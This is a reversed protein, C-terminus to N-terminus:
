KSILLTPALLGPHPFISISLELSRDSPHAGQTGDRFTRCRARAIPVRDLGRLSFATENGPDTGELATTLV